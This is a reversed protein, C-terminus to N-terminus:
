CMDVAMKCTQEIGVSGFRAAGSLCLAWLYTCQAPNLGKGVIDNTLEVEELGELNKVFELNTM